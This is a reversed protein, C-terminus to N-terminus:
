KVGNMRSQLYFEQRLETASKEMNKLDQRMDQCADTNDRLDRGHDEVRRGLREMGEIIADAKRNDIIAGAIEVTTEKESKKGTIANKGMIAALVLPVAGIAAIFIDRFDAGQMGFM